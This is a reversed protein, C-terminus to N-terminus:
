FLTQQETSSAKFLKWITDHKHLIGYADCTDEFVKQLRKANPSDCIYKDKFTKIYQDKLGPFFQDLQNYFYDRSGERMTTGIGFSVIFTVKAQAAKKVTEIINEENDTIFPLIPTMWIGTTIGHSSFIKLAEYRKSPLTVHPEIKKALEDNTTTITLQVIAKHNFNIEKYLDLDRLVLNSKTLVSIGFGYKKVLSLAGRMLLIDKEIHVYPDSMAGTTLLTKKRKRKLQNEMIILADKKVAINDFDGVQYCTSRSDCYICGHTCGRYLNFNHNSQIISKAEIYRM